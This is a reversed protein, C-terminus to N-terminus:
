NSDSSTPLEDNKALQEHITQLLLNSDVPKQLVQYGRQRAQEPWDGTTDGTMIIAPVNFGLLQRIHEVVDFGSIGCPLRYDSLVLHPRLKDTEIAELAAFSTAAPTVRFDHMKLYLEGARLLAADDEIFLISVPGIPKKTTPKPPPKLSQQATETSLPVSVTFVSGRGPRSQVAVPHNLLQSLRQVIALGLGL